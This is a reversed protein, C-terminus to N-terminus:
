ELISADFNNNLNYENARGTSGVKYIKNETFFFYEGIHKYPLSLTIFERSELEITKENIGDELLQINDYEYNSYMSGDSYLGYFYISNIVEGALEVKFIQKGGNNFNLIYYKVEKEGGEQAYEELVSEMDKITNNELGKGEEYKGAANQAYGVINSEKAQGIAVVALILLVVITIILAILTIGIEQKFNKM